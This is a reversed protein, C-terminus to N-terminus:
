LVKIAENAMFTFLHDMIGWEQALDIVVERFAQDSSGMAAHRFALPMIWGDKVMDAVDFVLAGRRTQGHLVPMAYPIGLSHLVVAAYGYALYNGHDLFGNAIDITNASAQKGAERKFSWGECNALHAYLSKAWVAESALLSAINAAKEIRDSFDQAFHPPLPVGLLKWRDQTWLLRHRLMAKAIGVRRSEDLWQRIWGQCYQTPRYEDQPLMFVPDVLGHLPSGGSGCFGVVVNSESLLRAAADTISTGKGLLLFATNKDPINFFNEVRAGTDTLYVLRGANQMVRAHEIYFVNARKSMMVAGTRPKNSM